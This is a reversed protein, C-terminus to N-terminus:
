YNKIKEVIIQSIKEYGINNPYFNTSSDFYEQNNNFIQSMDIYEFGEETVISKLKYNAYNFIDNNEGTINYYGLVFVKNHNYRDIRNLLIEMDELMADIYSYINDNNILLKYYLENMGVSVTIIDAKKLLENISINDNNITVEDNYEIARLLDTIRYDKDTFSDNYGKLKNEQELYTKIKNSYGETVVLNQNLGQALGDGLNLYYLTDDKTFNYISYCSLFLVIILIVKKM